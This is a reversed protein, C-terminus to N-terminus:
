FLKGILGAILAGLFAAVFVGVFLLTTQSNTLKAKQQMNKEGDLYSDAKITTAICIEEKDQYKVSVYENDTLFTIIALLGDMDVKYKAPLENLLQNKNLVKYNNETKDRLLKLLAATSKYLMNNEKYHTVRLACHAIFSSM